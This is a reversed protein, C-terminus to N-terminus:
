ESSFTYNDTNIASIALVVDGAQLVPDSASTASWSSSATNVAKSRSGPTAWISGTPIRYAHMQAAAANGSTIAVTLTGSETGDAIKYFVTAFVTGTDVGASGSGGSQQGNPLTSWGSPTSPGNSPYKNSICVVLMDGAAIGSPYAVALTNVGVAIAGSAVYSIAM